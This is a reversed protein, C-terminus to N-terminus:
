YREEDSPDNHRDRFTTTPGDFRLPVVGRKGGSRVKDLILVAEGNDELVEREEDFKADRHLLAIVDAHREISGCEALDSKKPWRISGTRKDVERNLQALMFIPLQTRKAFSKLAWLADDIQERRQAREREPRPSIIQAYDVMVVGLRKGKARLQEILESTKAIIQDAGIPSDDFIHIPLLAIRKAAEVIANWEAQGLAGAAMKMNDIGSAQSLEREVIEDKSAEISFMAVADGTAAVNLAVQTMLSTKGIGPRAGVIILQRKHMGTTMRDLRRIGTPAGTVGNEANRHQILTTVRKLIDVSRESADVSASQTLTDIASQARGFLSDVNPEFYGDAAIRQCASIIQRARWKDHVTRAYEAVRDPSVAPAADLIDTIYATGGAQALRDHDRLWTAVNVVDASRDADRLARAAAFIQRHAESYFQSPALYAIRDIIGGGDAVLIASLVAAEADLDHPPPVGDISRPEVPALVRLAASM